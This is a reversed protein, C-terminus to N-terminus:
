SVEHLARCFMHAGKLAGLVFLASIPSVYQLSSAFFFFPLEYLFLTGRHVTCLCLSVTSYHRDTVPLCSSQFSAEATCISHMSHQTHQAHQAIHATYATIETSVEPLSPTSQLDLDQPAIAWGPHGPKNWQSIAQQQLQQM